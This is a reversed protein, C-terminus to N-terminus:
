IHILSLAGAIWAQYFLPYVMGDVLGFIESQAPWFGSGDVEPTWSYTGHNNLFDITVGCATYGLMEQVTGFPYDNNGLMEICWDAYLDFNLVNSSAADPLILNGATSHVSSATAPNIDLILDRM